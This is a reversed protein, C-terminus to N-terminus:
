LSISYIDSDNRLLGNKVFGGEQPIIEIMDFSTCALPLPEFILIFRQSNGASVYTWEPFMSINEAHLLRSRHSSSNCFLYTTPWIRISISGGPSVIQCHVVVLRREHISQLLQLVAKPSVKGTGKGPKLVISSM